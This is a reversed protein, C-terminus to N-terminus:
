SGVQELDRRPGTAGLEGQLLAPVVFQDFAEALDDPLSARVSPHVLGELWTQVAREFLFARTASPLNAALTGQWGPPLPEYPFDGIRQLVPLRYSNRYLLIRKPTVILGVPCGVKDMYEALRKEALEVDWLETAKVEVALLIDIRDSSAVILDPQLETLSAM